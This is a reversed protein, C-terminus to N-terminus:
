VYARGGDTDLSVDNLAAFHDWFPSVNLFAFPEMRICDVRFTDGEQSLLPSCEYDYVIFGSPLPLVKSHRTLM